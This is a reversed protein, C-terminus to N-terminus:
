SFVVIETVTYMIDILNGGHVNYCMRVSNYSFIDSKCGQLSEVEQAQVHIHDIHGHLVCLNRQVSILHNQLVFCGHNYLFFDVFCININM